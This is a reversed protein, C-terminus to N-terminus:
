QSRGAYYLWLLNSNIKKETIHRDNLLNNHLHSSCLLKFNFSNVSVNYPYLIPGM